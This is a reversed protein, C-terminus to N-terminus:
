FYPYMILKGASDGGPVDFLANRHRAVYNLQEIGVRKKSDATNFLKTETFSSKEVAKLVKSTSSKTPTTSTTKPITTTSTTTSTLKARIKSTPLFPNFTPGFSEESRRCPEGNCLPYGGHNGEIRASTLMVPVKNYYKMDAKSIPKEVIFEPPLAFEHTVKSAADSVEHSSVFSHVSNEDRPNTYIKVENLVTYGVLRTTVVIRPLYCVTGKVGISEDTSHEENSSKTTATTTTATTTTTTKTTSTTTSPQTTTQPTTSDEHSNGFDVITTLNAVIEARGLGKQSKISQASLKMEEEEFNSKEKDVELAVPFGPPFDAKRNVTSGIYYSLGKYAAAANQDTEPINLESSPIIAKQLDYQGANEQPWVNVSQWM